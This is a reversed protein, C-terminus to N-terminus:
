TTSWKQGEKGVPVVTVQGVRDVEKRLVQQVRDCITCGEALTLDPAVQVTIDISLYQGISRTRLMGIGLVGEVSLTLKRIRQQVPEDLAHDLIGQWASRLMTFASVLLLTAVLIAGLPDMFLLGLQAGVVGVLAALTSYVDARNEWANAIMAPSGFREGCCLSHRFMIENGVISILLAVLALVTPQHTVGNLIEAVASYSILIAISSLSVGVFLSAIYEINGHGFPHDKDPPTNSVRLCIMLIIALVVDAASHVADAVVARSDGATGCVLKVVFLGINGWLALRGVNQACWHCEPLLDANPTPHCQTM